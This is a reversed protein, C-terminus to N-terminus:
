LGHRTAIVMDMKGNTMYFFFCFFVFYENHILSDFLDFKCLLTLMREFFVDNYYKKKFETETFHFFFICKKPGFYM